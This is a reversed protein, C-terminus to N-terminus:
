ESTKWTSAGTRFLRDLSEQAKAQTEFTGLIINQDDTEGYVHFEKGTLEQGIFFTKFYGSRYWIGNQSRVM